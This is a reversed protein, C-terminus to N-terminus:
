GVRNAVSGTAQKSSGMATNLKFRSTGIDRVDLDEDHNGKDVSGGLESNASVSGEVKAARVEMGM